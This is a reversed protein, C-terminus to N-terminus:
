GRTQLHCDAQCDVPVLAGTGQLRVNGSVRTRAFAWDGFIQIELPEIDISARHRFGAIAVEILGARTTVSPANPAMYIADDAFLAVWADVDGANNADETRQILARIAAQADERSPEQAYTLHGALTALLVLSALGTGPNM